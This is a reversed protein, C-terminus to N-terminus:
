RAIQGLYYGLRNKVDGPKHFGRAILQKIGDQTREDTHTQCTREYNGHLKGYKNTEFVLQNFGVIATPWRYNMRRPLHVCLGRCDRDSISAGTVRDVRRCIATSILGSFFPGRLQVITDGM